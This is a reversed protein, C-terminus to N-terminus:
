LDNARWLYWSAVSRWPRWRTGYEALERTSPLMDRAFAIKFGRRIGLDTVPLVDPRGLHFILVMQATWPGIGRHTTLTSVIDADTMKDIATRAPMKGELCSGALGQIAAVKTRSLGVSRLADASSQAIRAPTPSDGYLNWLRTQIALGAHKSIQQFIVSHVLHQFLTWDTSIALKFSGVQEILRGLTPDSAYLADIAEDADYPLMRIPICPRHRVSAGPLAGSPM